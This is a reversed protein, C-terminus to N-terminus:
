VGKEETKACKKVSIEPQRRCLVKWVEASFKRFKVHSSQLSRQLLKAVVRSDDVSKM